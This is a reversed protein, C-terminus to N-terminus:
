RHSGGCGVFRWERRFLDMGSQRRQAIAPHADNPVPMLCVDDNATPPRTQLSPPNNTPDIGLEVEVAQVADFQSIQYLYAYLSILDGGKADSAFDAWKGTQINVRFSGM